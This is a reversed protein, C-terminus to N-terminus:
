GSESEPEIGWGGETESIDQGISYTLALKGFVHSENLPSTPPLSVGGFLLLLFALLCIFCAIREPLCSFL